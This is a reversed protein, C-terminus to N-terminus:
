VNGRGGNNSGRGGRVILRLQLRHLVRHMPSISCRTRAQAAADAERATAVRCVRATKERVAARLQKPDVGQARAMAFFKAWERRRGRM